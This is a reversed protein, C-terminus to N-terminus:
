WELWQCLTMENSNRSADFASQSAEQFLTHPHKYMENKQTNHAFAHFCPHHVPTIRAHTAQAASLWKATLATLQVMEEPTIVKYNRRSLDYKEKKQSQVSTTLAKRYARTRQPAYPLPATPLLSTVPPTCLSSTISPPVAATAGTATAGTRSVLPPFSYPTTCHTPALGHWAEGCHDETGEVAGDAMRDLEQLM